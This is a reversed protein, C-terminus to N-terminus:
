KVFSRCKWVFLLLLLFAVEVIMFAGDQRQAPFPSVKSNEFRPSLWRLWMLPLFSFRGHASYHLRKKEPFLIFPGWLALPLHQVWSTSWHDGAARLGLLCHQWSICEWWPLTWGLDEALSLMVNAKWGRRGEAMMLLAFFFFVISNKIHENLM